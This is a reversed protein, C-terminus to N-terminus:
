ERRYRCFNTVPTLGLREIVKCKRYSLMLRKTTPTQCVDSRLPAVHTWSLFRCVPGKPAPNLQKILDVIAQCLGFRFLVGDIAQAVASIQLLAGDLWIAISPDGVTKVVQGIGPNEANIEVADEYTGDPEAYRRRFTRVSGRDGYKRIQELRLQILALDDDIRGAKDGIRAPLFSKRFQRVHRQPEGIHRAAVEMGVQAQGGYAGLVLREIAAHEHM